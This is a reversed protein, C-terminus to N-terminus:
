SEKSSKSLKSYIAFNVILVLAFFAINLVILFDDIFGMKVDGM